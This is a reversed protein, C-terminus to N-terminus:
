LRSHARTSARLVDSPSTESIFYTHDPQSFRPPTHVELGETLMLLSPRRETNTRPTSREIYKALWCVDASCPRTHDSQSHNFPDKAEAGLTDVMLVASPM